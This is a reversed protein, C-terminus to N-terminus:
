GQASRAEKETGPRIELRVSVTSGSWATEMAYGSGSFVEFIEQNEALVIATFAEYGKARAFAALHHLLETAIGQGQFADEVVFAVEASREQGGVMRGVARIEDDDPCVAVFAAEREFDLTALQRLQADTFRRRATFFRLRLAEPSLRDVFRSLRVDDDPRIRRIVM